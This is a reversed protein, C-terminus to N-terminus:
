TFVVFLFHGILFVNTATWILELTQLQSFTLKGIVQITSLHNEWHNIQITSLNTKWYSSKNFPSCNELALDSPEVPLPGALPREKIVHLSKCSPSLLPSM